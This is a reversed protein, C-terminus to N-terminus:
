TLSSDTFGVIRLCPSELSNEFHSIDRTCDVLFLKATIQKSYKEFDLIRRVDYIFISLQSHTFM